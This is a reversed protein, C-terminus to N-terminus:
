ALEAKMEFEMPSRYGLTSHRRNANYVPIEWIVGGSYRLRYCLQANLHDWKNPCTPLPNLTYEPQQDRRWFGM